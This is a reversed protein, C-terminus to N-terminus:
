GELVLRFTSGQNPTSQALLEGGLVAVLYAALSLGLGHGRNAASGQSKGSRFPRVLAPLDEPDFGVGRDQVEICCRPGERWATVHIRPPSSGAHRIGNDILNALVQRLPAWPARCSPLGSWTLSGGRSEIDPAFQSALDALLSGLQIEQSHQDLAAEAGAELLGSLLGELRTSALRLDALTRAAEEELRGDLLRSLHEAHRGAQRAPQALEHAVLAAFQRLYLNAREARLARAESAEPPVSIPTAAPDLSRSVTTM